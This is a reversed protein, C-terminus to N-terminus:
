EDKFPFVETKNEILLLKLETTEDGWLVDKVCECEVEVNIMELAGEIAGCVINNYQLKGLESPLRVFDTLPNGSISITCATGESNWGTVSATANLFLKLAVTAIKEATDRFEVCKASETV